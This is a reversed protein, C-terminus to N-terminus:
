GGGPGGPATTQMIDWICSASKKVVAVELLMGSEVGVCVDNKVEQTHMCVQTSLVRL